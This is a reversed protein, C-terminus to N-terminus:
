AYDRGVMPEDDEVIATPDDRWNISFRQKAANRLTHNEPYGLADLEADVRRAFGENTLQPDGHKVVDDIGM